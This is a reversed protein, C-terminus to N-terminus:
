GYGLTLDFGVGPKRIVDDAICGKCDTWANTLLINSTTAIIAILTLPYQYYMRIAISEIRNHIQIPFHVPLLKLNLVFSFSRDQGQAAAVLSLTIRSFIIEVIQNRHAPPTDTFWRESLELVVELVRKCCPAALSLRCIPKGFASVM